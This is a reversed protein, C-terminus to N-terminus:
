RPARPTAWAGSGWTAPARFLHRGSEHVSCTLVRPDEHFIWQVGNGHHAGVDVYAIREAGRDPLCRIAVAADNHICMGSARNAM